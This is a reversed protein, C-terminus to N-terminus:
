VATFFMVGIKNNLFVISGLVRVSAGLLLLFLFLQILSILFGFLFSSVSIEELNTKKERMTECLACAFM